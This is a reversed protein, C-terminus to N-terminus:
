ALPARYEVSYPVAVLRTGSRRVVTYTDTLEAKQDPHAKLYTDLQAKTLGPPYFGHGSGKGLAQRGYIVTMQDAAKILLNVVKREEPTLFATNPRMQVVAYDPPAKALAPAASLVSLTLVIAISRM